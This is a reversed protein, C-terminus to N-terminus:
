MKLPKPLPVYVTVGLLVPNKNEGPLWDTVTAPVPIVPTFKLEVAWNAISLVTDVSRLEFDVVIADGVKEVVFGLSNSNAKTAVSAAEALIVTVPTVPAPRVQDKTFRVFTCSPVASIQLAKAGVVNVLTATVAASECLTPAEMTTTVKLPASGDPVPPAPAIPAVDELLAFGPAGLADSDVVRFM